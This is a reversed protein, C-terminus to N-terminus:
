QATCECIQVVVPHERRLHSTTREARLRRFLRGLGFQGRGFAYVALWHKFLVQQGTDSTYEYMCLVPVVCEGLAKSLERRAESPWWLRSAILAWIVGVIVATSRHYAIDLVPINDERINFRGSVSADTLLCPSGFDLGARVCISM